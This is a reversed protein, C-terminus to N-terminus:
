KLDQRQSCKSSYEEVITHNFKFNLNTVRNLKEVREAEEKKKTEELKRKDELDDRKKQM